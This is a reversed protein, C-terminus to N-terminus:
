ETTVANAGTVADVGSVFNNLANYINSSHQNEEYIEITQKTKRFIDDAARYMNEFELTVADYHKSLNTQM